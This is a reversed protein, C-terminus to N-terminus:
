PTGGVAIQYQSGLGEISACVHDGAKLFQPPTLSAGFGAPTGTALVSGAPLRYFRSAYALLQAISFLMDQTKGQQKVQDNVTLTLQLQAPDPIEDKTVLYPGLPAFGRKSKGKSWQAAASMQWNRESWDNMITYGFVAALAQEETADELEDSLVVALEVEWDLQLTEQSVQIVDSAGAIAATSKLFLVPEKPAMQGMAHAADKYNLGACLLVPVHNISPAFSDYREIAPLQAIDSDVLSLQQLKSLTSSDIDPILSALSHWHGLEDMIAPVVQDAIRLRSLKM